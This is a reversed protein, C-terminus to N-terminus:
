GYDRKFPHSSRVIQHGHKTKQCIRYMGKIDMEKASDFLSVTFEINDPTHINTEYKM